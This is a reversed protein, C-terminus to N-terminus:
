IEREGGGGGRERSPFSPSVEKGRGREQYEGKREPSSISRSVEKGRM